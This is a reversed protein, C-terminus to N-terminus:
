FNRKRAALLARHRRSAHLVALVRVETETFVYFIGYPFRGVNIRRIGSFRVACHQPGSAMRRYADIFAARFKAGLGPKEKEYWDDAEHLDTRVLPHRKPAPM